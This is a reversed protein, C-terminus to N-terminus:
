IREDLYTAHMLWQPNCHTTLTTKTLCRPLVIYGFYKSYYGVNHLAFHDPNSYHYLIFSYM